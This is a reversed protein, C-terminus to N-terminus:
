SECYKKMWGDFAMKHAKQANGIIQEVENGDAVPNLRFTKKLWNAYEASGDSAESDEDKFYAIRDHSIMPEADLTLIRFLEVLNEAVVQVGGESGFAVIPANSWDATQSWIAYTSGTGGAQAIERFSKIFEPDTSYTKLGADSFYSGDMEFGQSFWGKQTEAFELLKVLADPVQAPKFYAKYEKLTSM